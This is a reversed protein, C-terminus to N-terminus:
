VALPKLMRGSHDNQIKRDMRSIPAGYRWVATQQGGWGAIQWVPGAVPQRIEWAEGGVSFGSNVSNFGRIIILIM